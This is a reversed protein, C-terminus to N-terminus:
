EGCECAKSLAQDAEACNITEPGLMCMLGPQAGLSTLRHSDLKYALCHRIENTEPSTGWCKQVYVQCYCYPMLTGLDSGCRYTWGPRVCDESPAGASGSSGGQSAGAGATPAGGGVAAGGVTSPSGVSGGVSAGASSPTGGATGGGGGVVLPADESGGSAAGGLASPEGAAGAEVDASGVAGAAGAAGSADDAFPAGAEAPPGSARRMPSVGGSASCGIVFLLVATIVRATLM